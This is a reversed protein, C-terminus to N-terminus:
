PHYEVVWLRDGVVKANPFVDLVGQQVSGAFADDGCLLAGDVLFPKIAQLCDRVSARDHAADLHLFSICPAPAGGDITEIWYRWDMRYQEINGATLKEVNADFTAMVDRENAAIVSPHDEGEDTNGKWWDVVHLVRPAVAQAIVTTSRGEWAGIEVLAGEPAMQALQGVFLAQGGDYWDEHFTPTWDPSFHHLWKNIDMLVTRPLDSAPGIEFQQEKERGWIDTGSAVRQAIIAPDTHHDNVLEQHLFQTQKERIKDVGGFYSFHWGANDIAVINPYYGDPQGIGNRVIHPSLARADALRCARTGPWPRDIALTNFNYYYFKQLYTVIFGDPIDYPLMTARPIEDCDSIMILTDDGLDAVGRLIANRQFMERRRVAALGEGQPMDDVVVYRIKDAWEAFRTWNAQFHLPKPDGKHTLTAEVVVFRDVIPALESIRLELLDLENFFPVADVLMATDRGDGM